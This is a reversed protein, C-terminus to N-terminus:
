AVALSVPLEPHQSLYRCFRSRLWSERPDNHTAGRWVMSLDPTPLDLPAFEARMGEMQAMARAVYEPLIAIMDSGALLAPLASFQPVALVVKRQRGILSLAHDADDVVNGMSSVVVHPRKCFEELELCGPNSDARLLMPQMPRLRKCHASAPLEQAYSIGISIEGSTLLQPLQRHDVRRVVLTINPAEDRLHKMLRPLLAYEVDDCLGVHFTESSTLPDFAQTCSLAVAIGDLAPTLRAHIEEARATPEMVRGTRIFLPDNFMSRLRGLASSITTQCLFLREGARTVNREHMVTEFVILLNIDARRLDNRNM